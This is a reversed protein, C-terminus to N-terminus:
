KKPPLLSALSKVFTTMIMWYMNGLDLVISSNQEQSDTGREIERLISYSIAGLLTNDHSVVPLSHYKRWGPNAIIANRNAHAPVTIVPATKVLDLSASSPLRYVQPISIVGTLRGTRDTIYLYGMVRMSSKVLHSRAAAVSMDGPVSAASPEMLSGASDEPHKLLRKIPAATNESCSSLVPTREDPSLIRLLRSSVGAPVKALLTEIKNKPWLSLCAAASSTNMLALTEVAEGDDNEVLFSVADRSPLGELLRAAELPHEKLLRRALEEDIFLTTAM